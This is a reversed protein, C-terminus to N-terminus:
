VRRVRRRVFKEVGHPRMAELFAARMKRNAPRMFPSAPIRVTGTEFFRYYWRDSHIFVMGGERGEDFHKEHVQTPDVDYGRTTRVRALRKVAEARGSSTGEKVAHQVADELGDVAQPFQSTFKVKPKPAM